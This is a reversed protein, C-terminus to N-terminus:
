GGEHKIYGRVRRASLYMRGDRLGLHSYAGCTSVQARNGQEKQPHCGLPCGRTSVATEERGLKLVRSPVTGELLLDAGVAVVHVPGLLVTEGDRQTTGYLPLQVLASPKQGQGMEQGHQGAAWCLGPVELVM